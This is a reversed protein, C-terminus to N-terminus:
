KSLCVCYRKAVHSPVSAHAASVDPVVQDSDNGDNVVPDVSILSHSDVAGSLHKDENKDVAAGVEEGSARLRKVGQRSCMQERDGVAMSMESGKETVPVDLRLWADKLIEAATPREIPNRSLLQRLLRTSSESLHGPIHFRAEKIKRLLKMPVSDQFPYKGTLMVYLIVGLGWVDAAKGEYPKFSLVEPAVYAPSGKADNLIPTRGFPIVRCGDLDAISVSTMKQNAFMIKGLKLDRLIIGHGHCHAVASTIQAFLQKALDESLRKKAKIFSHLDGHFQQFVVFGPNGDERPEEASLMRPINQHPEAELLYRAHGEASMFAELEDSRIVKGSVFELKAGPSAKYTGKNLTSCGIKEPLMAYQRTQRISHNGPAASHYNSRPNPFIM